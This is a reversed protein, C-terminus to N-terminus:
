VRRLGTESRALVRNLLLRDHSRSWRRGRRYAVRRRGVRRWGGGIGGRAIRCAGLLGALRLVRLCHLKKARIGADACGIRHLQEPDRDFLAVRVGFDSQSFQVPVAPSYGFIAVLRANKQGGRSPLSVRLCAPPELLELLLTTFLGPGEPSYKISFLM